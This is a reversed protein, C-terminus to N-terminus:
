VLEDKLIESVKYTLHTEEEELKGVRLLVCCGRKKFTHIKGEKDKLKSGSKLKLNTHLFLFKQGYIINLSFWKKGKIIGEFVTNGEYGYHNNSSYYDNETPNDFLTGTLDVKKLIKKLKPHFTLLNM